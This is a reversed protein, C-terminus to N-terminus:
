VCEWCVKAEAAVKGTATDVLQQKALDAEQRAQELLLRLERVASEAEQDNRAVKAAAGLCLHDPARPTPLLQCGSTAVCSCCQWDVM